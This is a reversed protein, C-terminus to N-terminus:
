YNVRLLILGKAPVPQGARRRDKASLIKKMSGKPLRSRGIEILTGIINRVMNYLFGDAEIEIVLLPAGELNDSFKKISIRKITRMTDRVDSGSTCFSKFDRKGLLCRAEQRMLNIDLPYPYFYVRNRLLAPRYPRNLITYRYTKAKASFRSHFDLGAEEIKSVAIDTPLLGNLARRLKELSIESKVKFNAVQALAHVGADTRGSAILRIKEQLIKRLTNELVAQITKHKRKQAQWGAYNTGDYEITLKLNRM